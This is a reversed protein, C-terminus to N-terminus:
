SRKGWSLRVKAKSSRCPTCSGRSLKPARAKRPRTAADAQTDDAEGAGMDAAEMKKRSAQRNSRPTGTPKALQQSNDAPAQEVTQDHSPRSNEESANQHEPPFTIKLRDAGFEVIMALSEEQLAPSQGAFISFQEPTLTEPDVNAEALLRIATERRKETVGSVLNLISHAHLSSSVMAVAQAESENLADGNVLGDPYASGNAMGDQQAQTNYLRQAADGVPRAGPMEPPLMHDVLTPDIQADGDNKKKRPRKKQTSPEGDQTSKKRKRPRPTAGEEGPTGGNGAGNAAQRRKSTKKSIPKRNEPLNAAQPRPPPPALLDLLEGVTKHM